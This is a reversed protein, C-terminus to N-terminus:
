KGRLPTDNKVYIEFLPNSSLATFNSEKIMITIPDYIELGDPIGNFQPDNQRYRVIVDAINESDLFYKNQKIKVLNLLSEFGPRSYFWSMVWTSYGNSRLPTFLYGAPFNYYCLITKKARVEPRNLEASLLNIFAAKEPTTFLGLYPGTKIQETLQTVTKENYITRFSINLFITSAAFVLALFYKESAFNAKLKEHIFLISIIAAPSIGVCINSYGNASTLATTFGAAIIPLFVFVFLPFYNEAFDNKFFIYLFLGFFTVCSLFRSYQFGPIDNGLIAFFLILFVVSCFLLNSQRSIRKYIFLLACPVGILPLIDEIVALKERFSYAYPSLTKM